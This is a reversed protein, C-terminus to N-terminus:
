REKEKLCAKWARVLLENEAPRRTAVRVYEPLGFSTCDRVQIGKRLLGTRTAAADGVHVLFFHTASPLVKLELRRLATMLPPTAALTQSLTTQCYLADKLCAIAALQAVSNVSWPPQVRGTVSVIEQDALLYGVRLGAIAYDKTMSRLLVLRGSEILPTADWGRRVFPLYAEDLVLLGDPNAELLALVAAKDLYVGTPNNPNCLFCLRPKLQHLRHALSEVDPIFVAERTARVVHIRAGMLSCASAYEGFTPASILVPDGPRLYALALLWILEATGNGVRIQERPRDTREALAARLALCERDPYREPHVDRWLHRVAPPPGYPNRNVSFDVLEGPQLGMRELELYDLGGHVDPQLASVEPRPPINAM